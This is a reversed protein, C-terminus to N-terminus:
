DLPLRALFAAAEARTRLRHVKLHPTAASRQELYARRPGHQTWSWWAPHDRSLWGRLTERNGGFVRERRLTRGASRRLARLFTVRRPLDLWLLTDARAWMLDRVAEYGYSDLVWGPQSTIADVREVLDPATSWGPGFALADVEAFPLGLRAAVARAYTTKGAGTIGVVLVRQM